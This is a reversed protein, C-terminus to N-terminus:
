TVCEVQDGFIRAVQRDRANRATTILMTRTMGELAAWPLGPPPDDDKPPYPWAPLATEPHPLPVPEDPDPGPPTAPAWAPYSAASAARKCPVVPLSVVVPFPTLEEGPLMPRPTWDPGPSFALPEESSDPYRKCAPNTATGIDEPSLWAELPGRRLAPVSCSGSDPDLYADPSRPAAMGPWCLPGGAPAWGNPGPDCAPRSGHPGAWVASGRPPAVPTWSGTEPTPWGWLPFFSPSSSRSPAMLGPGDHGPIGKEKRM